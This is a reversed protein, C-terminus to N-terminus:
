ITGQTLRTLTIRCHDHELSLSEAPQTVLTLKHNKQRDLPALEGTGRDCWWTGYLLPTDLGISQLVTGDPQFHYRLTGDTWDGCVQFAFPGNFRAPEEQHNGHTLDIVKEHVGKKFEALLELITDGNEVVVARITCSNNIEFAGRYLTNAESGDISYYIALERSSLGGRLAIRELAITVTTSDTFITSGAIVAATVEIPKDEFTSQVLGMGLGYFAKRLPSRPPTLDLPDGNETGLLEAPGAVQLAVVSDGSPVFRGQADIISFSVQAVDRGDPRLSDTDTELRIGAPEGATRVKKVAQPQGAVYGIAELTGPEYSVDWSLYMADGMRKRGLSRGNLLLEAEDCNTYIWVPIRSDELGPHTWHPLLHIMPSSTFRSQYFYYHDKPFNALDIIGFNASRAPWGFSEGLYDFGTWRFEGILYSYKQVFGWSHRASTRVGSNDYSSNYQLAGDFFLEKETLNPIEIRHRNKDRWWTQTRYFGRTQFTHPAETAVMIRNPHKEHDLEYGFCSGRGDNYGAVDLLSRNEDPGPGISDIGCTVPRTPDLQHVFEVLKRTTEPKMDLVENGISWFLVCPHNRDRRLMDGLDQQWWEEFYLGYDCDAKTKEWGDFAEDVVIFGLRDCFTYFEPSMPHHATRIANCGMEKLMRLRKMLLKEPVAAGVPGADHHLCVGKLKMPQGNLAFGRTTDISFSRIGFSTVHDDICCGNAFIETKMTYVEPTDVSWLKPSSINMEVEETAGKNAELKLLKSAKGVLTGSPSFIQAVLTVEREGASHNTLEIQGHVLAYENHIAPTTIYTGWHAVRVVETEVLWVHRYIGCGTYWRGSPSGTNDVRIAITNSGERLLDAFAVEFGMYGYPRENVKCGNIWITSNMYIGDFELFLGKEGITGSWELQKRYWGIGSPLFGGCKGTPNQEAYEGEISWDHPLQVTRWHSDDYDDRYADIEDSLIFKWNWDFCERKRCDLQSM